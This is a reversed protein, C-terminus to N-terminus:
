VDSWGRTGTIHKFGLEDTANPDYDKNFGYILKELTSGNIYKGFYCEPCIAGNDHTPLDNLSRAIKMELFVDFFEISAMFSLMMIYIPVLHKEMWLARRGIFSYKELKSINHKFVEINNIYVDDHTFVIVDPSNKVAMQISRICGNLSGLKHGQNKFYSVEIDSDFKLQGNCAVYQKCDPFFKREIEITNMLTKKRSYVNHCFAINM